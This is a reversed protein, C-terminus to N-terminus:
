ALSGRPNSFLVCTMPSLVEIKVGAAPYCPVLGIAVTSRPRESEEVKRYPMLLGDKAVRLIRGENKEISRGLESLSFFFADPVMGQTKLVVKKFQWRGGM